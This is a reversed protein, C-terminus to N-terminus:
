EMIGSLLDILFWYRHSVSDSPIFYHVHLRNCGTAVIPQRERQTLCRKSLTELAKAYMTVWCDSGGSQLEGCVWMASQVWKGVLPYQYRGMAGATRPLTLDLLNRNVFLGFIVRGTIETRSVGPDASYNIRPIGARENEVIVKGRELRGNGVVAPVEFVSSQNHGFAFGSKAAHDAEGRAMVEGKGGQRRLMDFVHDM